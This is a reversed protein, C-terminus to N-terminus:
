WLKLYYSLATTNRKMSWGTILSHRMKFYRVSKGDPPPKGDVMFEVRVVVDDRRGRAKISKIQIKELNLVGEVEAETLNEIGETKIKGLAKRAYESFLWTQIKEKAGADVTTQRTYYRYGGIALVIFLVVLAKRGTLQIKGVEAM